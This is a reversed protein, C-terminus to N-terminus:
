DAIREIRDGLRITGGREVVFLAGRYRQQRVVAFAEPSTRERFVSCPRHARESRALVVEEGVRVRDGPELAALDFGETILNDGVVIPDVGLVRLTDLAVASVERGPVHKGLYFSKRGHDGAFGKGPVAQVSEREAHEHPRPTEVLMAVRGSPGLRHEDLEAVWAEVVALDPNSPVPAPRESVRSGIGSESM